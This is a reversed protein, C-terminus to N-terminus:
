FEKAWSSAKELFISQQPQFQLPDVFSNAKLVIKGEASRPYAYMPTGCTTCFHSDIKDKGGQYSYKTTEGKVSFGEDSFVVAALRSGGCLKQCTSCHCVFQFEPQATIKTTVQGCHCKGEIM